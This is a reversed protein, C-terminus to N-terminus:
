RKLLQIVEQKSDEVKKKINDEIFGVRFFLVAVLVIIIINLTILVGLGFSKWSFGQMEGSGNKVNVIEAEYRQGEIM